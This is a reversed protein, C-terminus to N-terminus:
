GQNEGKNWVERNRGNVRYEDGERGRIGETLWTM